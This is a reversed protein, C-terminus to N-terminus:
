KFSKTIWKEKGDVVKRETISTVKGSANVGILTVIVILLVFAWFPSCGLFDCISFYSDVIEKLM